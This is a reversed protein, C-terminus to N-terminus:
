VGLQQRIAAIHGPGTGCCGGIITAGAKAWSEAFNAYTQYGLNATQGGVLTTMRAALM